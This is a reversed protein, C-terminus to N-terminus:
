FQIFLLVYYIKRLIFKTIHVRGMNTNNESFISFNRNFWGFQSLFLIKWVTMVIFSGMIKLFQLSVLQYYIKRLIFNNRKVKKMDIMYESFIVFIVIFNNSILVTYLKWIGIVIFSVMMKLFNFLFCYTTLKVYFLNVEMCKERLQLIEGLFLMFIVIFTNSVLFTYLKWVAM